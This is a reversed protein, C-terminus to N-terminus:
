RAARAARRAWRWFHGLLGLRPPVSDGALSELTKAHARIWRRDEPVVGLEGLLRGSERALQRTVEEPM